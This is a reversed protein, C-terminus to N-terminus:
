EAFPRTIDEALTLRVNVWFFAQTSNVNDAPRVIPNGIAIATVCPQRYGFGLIDPSRGDSGKREAEKALAAIVEAVLAHAPDTPNDPDDKVFGQILLDWENIKDGGRDEAGDRDLVADLASPNELISVMPLPDGDGFASRGRFVRALTAGQETFDALDNTYGNAPTVTKICATVAKLVRLRFSDPM